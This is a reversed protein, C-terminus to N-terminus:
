STLRIELVVKDNVRTHTYFTERNIKINKKKQNTAPPGFVDFTSQFRRAIHPANLYSSVSNLIQKTARVPRELSIDFGVSKTRLILEHEALSWGM